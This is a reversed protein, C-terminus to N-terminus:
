FKLGKRVFASALQRCAYEGVFLLLLLLFIRRFEKGHFAFRKGSKLEVCFLAVHAMEHFIYIPFMKDVPLIVKARWEEYFLNSVGRRARTSCVFHLEADGELWFNERWFKSTLANVIMARVDEESFVTMAPTDKLIEWVEAEAAYMKSRESDRPRFGNKRM